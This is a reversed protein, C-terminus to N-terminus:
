QSEVLEKFREMDRQTRRVYNKKSLPGMIKMLLTKFVFETEVVWLTQDTGQEAFSNKVTNDAFQNEYVGDFQRPEDRRTVKEILTFERNGVEYTLKSVAGPQGPTGSLAEVSTLSPQWLKMNEVNDFAKWVELRPRNLLLELKFKM